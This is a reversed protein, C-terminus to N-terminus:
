RTAPDRKGMWGRPSTSASSRAAPATSLISGVEGRIGTGLLCEIVRDRDQKRDDTTLTSKKVIDPPLDQYALLADGSLKEAPAACHLLVRDRGFQELLRTAIVFGDGGNNGSGTLIHFCRDMGNTLRLIKEAAANGASRMLGIGSFLGSRITEADALRMEGPTLIKM